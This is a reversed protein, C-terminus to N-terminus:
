RARTTTRTIVRSSANRCAALHMSTSRWPHSSMDM